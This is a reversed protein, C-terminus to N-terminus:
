SLSICVHIILNTDRELAVFDSDELGLKEKGLAAAFCQVKGSNKDLGPKMRKKLSEDVRSTAEKSSSARVLCFVKEVTRNGILLDLIHAGLVGTAGTLLVTSTPNDKKEDSRAATYDHFISEIAEHWYKIMMASTEKSMDVEGKRFEILYKALLKVNGCDYVVNFPLKKGSLNIEQLDDTLNGVLSNLM